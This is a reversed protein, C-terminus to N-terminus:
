RTYIGFGVGLSIEFIGPQNDQMFVKRVKLNPHVSIANSFGTGAWLGVALQAFFGKRTFDTYYGGGPSFMFLSPRRFSGNFPIDLNYSLHVASTRESRFVYTYDLEARGYPFKGLSLEKSLGFHSKSNEILLTPTLLLASGLIITNGTETKSNKKFMFSQTHKLQSYSDQGFLYLTCLVLVFLYIVKKM